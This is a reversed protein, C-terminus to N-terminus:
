MLSGFIIIGVVFAGLYLLVHTDNAETVSDYTVQKGMIPEYIQGPQLDPRNREKLRASVLSSLEMNTKKLNYRDGDFYEVTDLNPFNSRRGTVKIEDEDLTYPSQMMNHTGLKDQYAMNTRQYTELENEAVYTRPLHRYKREAM